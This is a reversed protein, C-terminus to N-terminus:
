TSPSIRFSLFSAYIACIIRWILSILGWFYDDWYFYRVNEIFSLYPSSRTTIDIHLSAQRESCFSHETPMV